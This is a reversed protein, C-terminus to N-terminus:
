IRRLIAVVGGVAACLIGLNVGARAIPQYESAVWVDIIAGLSSYFGAGAVLVVILLVLLLVWQLSTVIRETEFGFPTSRGDDPGDASEVSDATM